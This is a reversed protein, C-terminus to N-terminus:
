IQIWSLDPLIHFFVEGHVAHDVAIKLEVLICEAFRLCLSHSLGRDLAVFCRQMEAFAENVESYDGIACMMGRGELRGQAFHCEVLVYIVKAFVLQALDFCETLLGIRIM